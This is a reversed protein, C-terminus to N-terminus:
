TCIPPCYNIGPYINELVHPDWPYPFVYYDGFHAAVIAAGNAPFEHFNKKESFEKRSGRSSRSDGGWGLVLGCFSLKLVTKLPLPVLPSIKILRRFFTACSLDRLGFAVLQTSPWDRKAPHRFNKFIDAM